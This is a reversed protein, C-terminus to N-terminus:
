KKNFVAILNFFGVRFAVLTQILIANLMTDYNNLYKFLEINLFRNNMTNQTTKFNAWALKTNNLIM